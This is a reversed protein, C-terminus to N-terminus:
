DHRFVPALLMYASIVHTRFSGYIPIHYTNALTYFYKESEQIRKEWGQEAAYGHFDQSYPMLLFIVRVNEQQLRQVWTDLARQARPNLQSFHRFGSDQSREEDLLAKSASQNPDSLSGDPQLIVESWGTQNWRKRDRWKELSASLMTQSLLALYRNSISVRDNKFPQLNPDIRLENALTYYEDELTKWGRFENAQNLHYPELSIIVTKPHLNKQRYLQTIAFYDELTARPLSHNFFPRGGVDRAAVRATRASGLLIVEPTTKFGEVLLRFLRRTNYPEASPTNQAALLKQSLSAESGATFLHYPDSQYNFGAVACLIGCLTIFLIRIYTLHTSM